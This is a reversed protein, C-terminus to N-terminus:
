AAVAAREQRKLQRARQVAAILQDRSFPKELFVSQSRTIAEAQETDGPYGSKLM